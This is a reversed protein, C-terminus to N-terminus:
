RGHNKQCQEGQKSRKKLRGPIWEGDKPDDRLALEALARGVREDNLEVDAWGELEEVDSELVGGEIDSGDAAYDLNLTDFVHPAEVDCVEEPSPARSRSSEKPGDSGQLAEESNKHQNQLGSINRAKKSPRQGRM